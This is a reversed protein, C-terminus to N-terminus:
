IAAVNVNRLSVFNNDGGLPRLSCQLLNLYQDNQGDNLTDTQKNTNVIVLLLLSTLAGVACAAFGAIVNVERGQLM